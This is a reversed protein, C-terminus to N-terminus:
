KLLIDKVNVDFDYKRLLDVALFFSTQFNKKCLGFYKELDKKTLSALVRGDVLHLKFADQLQGLGIEKLWTNCLWDNSISGLNEYKSNFFSINLVKNDLFNHIM